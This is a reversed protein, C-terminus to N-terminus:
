VGPPPNDDDEVGGGEVVARAVFPLRALTPAGPLDVLAVGRARKRPAAGDPLAAAGSLALTPPLDWGVLPPPPPLGGGYRAELNRWFVRGAPDPAMDGPPPADADTSPADDDDSRDGHRRPAADVAAAVADAFRQPAADVDLPDADLADGDAAARDLIAAVTAAADAGPGSASKARLRASAWVLAAAGGGGEGGADVDVQGRWKTAAAALTGRGPPSAALVDLVRAAVSAAGGLRTVSALLVAALTAGQGRPLSDSAGRADLPLSPDLTIAPNALAAATELAMVIVADDGGGGTTPVAKALLKALSGVAGLDLLAAKVAPRYALPVACELAARAASAPAAPAAADALADALPAALFAGMGGGLGAARAIFRVLAARTVVAPSALASTVCRLLPTAAPACARALAARTAVRDPPPHPRTTTRAAGAPPWEAPMIDGLLVLTALTDAPSADTNDADPPPDGALGARPAPRGRALANAM